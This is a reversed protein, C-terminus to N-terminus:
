IKFQASNEEVIKKFSNGRAEFNKFQDFSACGPSLLLVESYTKKSGGKVNGENKVNRENMGQLALKSIKEFNCLYIKNDSSIAEYIKKGEAGYLYYKNIISSFDSLLSYDTKKGKKSKGQGGLILNIKLHYKNYIIKLASIVSDLTTAKSDNYVLLSAHPVKELRHEIPKFAEFASKIKEPSVDNLLALAFCFLLNAKPTLFKLNKVKFLHNSAFFFDNEDSIHVLSNQEDRGSVIIELPSDKKGFEGEKSFERNAIIEDDQNKLFIDEKTMYKLLNFKAEVYCAFSEYRDLHDKQLNTIVAQNPRFFLLDELMYSSVEIIFVQYKSVQAMAKSIPYGINGCCCVKYKTKLIQHTLHCVTTKGNTGTVAIVHKYKLLPYFFDIESLIPLTGSEELSFKSLSFKSLEKLDDIVKQKRPVGPSILVTDIKTFPFDPINKLTDDSYSFYNELPIGHEQLFIETERDLPKDNLIFFNLEKKSLLESIARGTAGLGLILLTKKKQKAWFEVEIENFDPYPLFTLPPLKFASRSM